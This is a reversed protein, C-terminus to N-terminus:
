LIRLRHVPIAHKSKMYNPM